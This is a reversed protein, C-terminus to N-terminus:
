RKEGSLVIVGAGLRYESGIKYLAADEILSKLILGADKKSNFLTHFHFNMYTELLKDISGFRVVGRVRTIKYDIGKSHKFFEKLVYLSPSKQGFPFPLIRKWYKHALKQEQSSPDYHFFLFRAGSHMSDFLLNLKNLSKRKAKKFDYLIVRGNERLAFERNLGYNMAWLSLVMDTKRVISQHKKVFDFMESHWFRVGGNWERSKTIKLMEDSLDVANVSLAYKEIVKTMRGPGCGLELVMKIKKRGNATNVRLYNELLQEDSKGAFVYDPLINLYYDPDLYISFSQNLWGYRKRLGM